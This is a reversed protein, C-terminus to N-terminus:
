PSQGKGVGCEHSDAVVRCLIAVFSAFRLRSLRVSMVGPEEEFQPDDLPESTGVSLGLRAAITSGCNECSPSSRRFCFSWQVSAPGM